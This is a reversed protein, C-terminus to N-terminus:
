KLAHIPNQSMKQTYSSIKFINRYMKQFCTGSTQVTKTRVIQKHSTKIHHPGLHDGGVEMGLTLTLTGKRPFFYQFFM